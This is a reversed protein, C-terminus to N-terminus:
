TGAKRRREYERLLTRRAAEDDGSHLRSIQFALFVFSVAAVGLAAANQEKKLLTDYLGHLVMPVAVILFVPAIYEYWPMERQMLEQRNYLTIAVSGTWLAHLAVCSIFRVLYIGAGSIGNYYDSSYMIGESIGFGAGSALGWLFAGRWEQATPRRYHWLLPMAKCVEECLGVGLTFGLFSLFFGNEPDAAARYSYGIFKVIYFLIVVISRGHVWVGQSWNALLQVLLLFVIGITATFLGLGLVHMPEAAKGSALLLFFAMFLVTAGGAFAWHLWTRAPLFAGPLKHNPLADIVDKVSGQGNELAALARAIAPRADEPAQRLASLLRDELDEKSDDKQLLSFALPILALILLWHLHRLWFPTEESRLPPLSPPAPRARKAPQHPEPPEPPEAPEPAPEALQYTAPEEVVAQPITLQAGCGPCAVTRGALAERAKLKKGCGTCTISIPM